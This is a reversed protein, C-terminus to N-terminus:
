LIHICVACYSHSLSLSGCRRRDCTKPFASMNTKTPSIVHFTDHLSLSFQLSWLLCFTSLTRLPPRMVPVSFCEPSVSPPRLPCTPPCRHQGWRNRSERKHDASGSCIVKLGPVSIQRAFPTQPPPPTAGAVSIGCYSSHPTHELGLERHLTGDPIWSSCLVDSALCLVAQHFSPIEQEKRM